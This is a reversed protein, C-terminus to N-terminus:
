GRRAARHSRGARASDRVNQPKQVTPSCPSKLARNRATALQRACKFEVNGASTVVRAARTVTSVREASPMSVENVCCNPASARTIGLGTSQRELAAGTRIRRCAPCAPRLPAGAAPRRSSWGSPTPPLQAAGGGANADGMPAMAKLREQRPPPTASTAEKDPRRHRSGSVSADGRRIDAPTTSQVLTTQTLSPWAPAPDRCCQHVTALMRSPKSRLVRGEPCSAWHHSCSTYEHIIQDPPRLANIMAPRERSPADGRYSGQQRLRAPRCRRVADQGRLRPRSGIRCATPRSIVPRDRPM